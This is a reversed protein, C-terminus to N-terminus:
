GSWSCSRLCNRGLGTLANSVSSRMMNVDNTFRSILKGTSTNHFFALDSRILHGFMRIQIDAIIRQGIFNMMVEQGYAAVGKAAFIAFTIAAIVYLRDLNRNDFAGDILPEMIRALAATTAAVIGMCVFSFAVRGLHPRLHERVIRKVLPWTNRDIPVKSKRKKALIM